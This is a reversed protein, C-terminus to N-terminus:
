KAIIKYRINAGRGGNTMIKDKHYLIIKMKSNLIPSDKCTAKLVNVDFWENKPLSNIIPILVADRKSAINKSSVSQGATHFAKKDPINDYLRAKMVKNYDDGHKEREVKETAVAGKPGGIKGAYSQNDPNKELLCQFAYKQHAIFKELREVNKSDILEKFKNDNEYKELWINVDTKRLEPNKCVVQNYFYEIFNEKSKTWNLPGAAM